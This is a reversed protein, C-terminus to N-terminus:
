VIHTLRNLELLNEWDQRSIERARQGLSRAWSNATEQANIDTVKLIVPNTTSNPTSTNLVAWGAVDNGDIGGKGVEAPDIVAILEMDEYRELPPVPTLASAGGGAFGGTLAHFDVTGSSGFTYGRGRFATVHAHPGGTESWPFDDMSSGGFFETGYGSAGSLGMIDGPDLYDGESVWWELLHLTRIWRTGDDVTIFRGTEPGVSGGIDVVRCPAPAGLPTGMPMYYDTGPERSPPRRGLHADRTSMGTYPAPILYSM